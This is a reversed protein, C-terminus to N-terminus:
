WKKMTKLGVLKKNPRVQETYEYGHGDLESAYILRLGKGTGLEGVKRVSSANEVVTSIATIDARSVAEQPPRQAAETAADGHSKM